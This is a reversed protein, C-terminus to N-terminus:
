KQLDPEFSFTKGCSTCLYTENIQPGPNLEVNGSMILLMETLAAISHPILFVESEYPYLQHAM